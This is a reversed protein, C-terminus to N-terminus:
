GNCTISFRAVNATMTGDANVTMHFTETVVFNPSSGTSILGFVNTFTFEVPFPPSANFEFWDGGVGHYTIGSPVGVGTVGSVNVDAHFHFGGSADATKAFMLHINGTFAILDGTCPNFVTQNLPVTVNQIVAASSTAPVLWLAAALFVAPLFRRM